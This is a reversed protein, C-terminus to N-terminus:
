GSPSSFPRIVTQAPWTKKSMRHHSPMTAIGSTKTKVSMATLEVPRVEIVGLPASPLSVCSDKLTSAGPLMVVFMMVAPMVPSTAALAEFRRISM